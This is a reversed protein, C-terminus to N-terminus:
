KAAQDFSARQERMPQDSFITSAPDGHRRLVRMCVISFSPLSLSLQQEGRECVAENGRKAGVNKTLLTRKLMGNEKDEQGRVGLWESVCMEAERKEGCRLPSLSVVKEVRPENMGDVVHIRATLEENEHREKDTQKQRSKGDDHMHHHWHQVAQQQETVHLRGADEDDMRKVRGCPLQQHQMENKEMGSM